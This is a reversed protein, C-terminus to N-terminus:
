TEFIQAKMKLDKWIWFYWLALIVFFSKRKKMTANGVSLEPLM